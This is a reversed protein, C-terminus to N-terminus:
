RLRYSMLAAKLLVDANEPDARVAGELHGLAAKVKGAELRGRTKSCLKNPRPSSLRRPAPTTALAVSL